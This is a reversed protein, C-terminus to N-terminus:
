EKTNILVHVVLKEFEGVTLVETLVVEVLEEAGAWEQAADPVGVFEGDGEQM